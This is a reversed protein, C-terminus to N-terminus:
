HKPEENVNDEPTYEKELIWFRKVSGQLM